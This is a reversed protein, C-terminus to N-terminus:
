IIGKRRSVTVNCKGDYRYDHLVQFVLVNSNVHIGEAWICHTTYPHGCEKYSADKNAPIM